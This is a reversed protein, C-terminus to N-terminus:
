KGDKSSRDDIPNGLPNGLLRWGQGAALLCSVAQPSTVLITWTGGGPSILIEILYGTQTVGASFTSENYKRQLFNVVIAREQCRMVSGQAPTLAAQSTACTSIFVVAALSVARVVAFFRIM